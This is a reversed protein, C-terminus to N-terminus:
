SSPQQAVLTEVLAAPLLVFMRGQANMRGAIEGAEAGAGWYFDGRVPGRIAGGTDQAIMLRRIPAGGAGEVPAIDVFVPAGLTHFRRDVALSRGATLPAGQAGIPGEDLATTELTRFFVYSENHERLARAEAPDANELWERISQMSIDELAMAGKERLVRGIATYPRGNQGAYNVRARQGDDFILQGSGQIQLFFLDTEDMWAIPEAIGELAGGYIAARDPYPALRAGELRGAVREGRLDDRFVGLDVDVLDEPRPYVAGKRQPTPQRSAAYVPEFYGTFTGTEEIIARGGRAPGEPLPDRMALAQVPRFYFEFYARIDSRRARADAHYRLDVQLAADCVARWHGVAGGMSVGENAAGLNEFANAPAADDKAAITACSILFTEFAPTPDDQMWGPLDGYDVVKYSFSPAGYGDLSPPQRLSPPLVGGFVIIASAVALFVAGLFFLLVPKSNAAIM